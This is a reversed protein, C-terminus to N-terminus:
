TLFTEGIGVMHKHNQEALNKLQQKAMSRRRAVGATASGARLQRWRQWQHRRVLRRGGAKAQRAAKESKIKGHKESERRQYAMGAQQNERRYKSGTVTVASSGSIIGCEGYAKREGSKRQIGRHTV